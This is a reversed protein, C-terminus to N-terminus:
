APSSIRPRLRSSSISARRWKKKSRWLERDRLHAMRAGFCRVRAFPDPASEDPVNLYTVVKGPEPPKSGCVSKPDTFDDGIVDLRRIFLMGVLREPWGQSLFFDLQDLTIPSLLGQVFEQDDLVSVTVVAENSRSGSASPDWPTLAGSELTLSLSPSLSSSASGVVESIATYHQPYRKMSRVANLLVSENHAREVAKNYVVAQHAVPRQLSCASLSALLGLALLLDFRRM